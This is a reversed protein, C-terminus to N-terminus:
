SGTWARIHSDVVFEASGPPLTMICALVFSMWHQFQMVNIKVDGIANSLDKTIENYWAHLQWVNTIIFFKIWVTSISAFTLSKLCWLNFDLCFLVFVFCGGLSLCLLVFILYVFVGLFPFFYFFVSFLVRLVTCFLIFYGRLSIISFFSFLVFCFCRVSLYARINSM